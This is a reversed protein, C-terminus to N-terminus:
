RPYSTMDGHIWLPRIKQKPARNEASRGSSRHILTATKGSDSYGAMKVIEAQVATTDALHRGLPYANTQMLRSRRRRGTRAPSDLGGCAMAERPAWPARVPAGEAQGRPRRFRQRRSGGAGGRGKQYTQTLDALYEQVTRPMVRGNWAVM